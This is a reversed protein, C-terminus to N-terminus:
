RPEGGLTALRNVLKPFGGLEFAKALTGDTIREKRTAMYILKLATKLDIDDFKTLDKSAFLESGETWKAWYFGPLLERKYMFEIFELILPDNEMWPMEISGDVNKEGGREIGWVGVHSQIKRNISNLVARDEDWLNNFADVSQSIAQEDNM